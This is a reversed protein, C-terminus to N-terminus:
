PAAPHQEIESLVRKHNKMAALTSRHEAGLIREAEVAAQHYFPEAQALKGEDRLVDGQNTSRQCFVIRPSQLWRLM